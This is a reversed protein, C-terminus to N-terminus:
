TCISIIQKYAKRFAKKTFKHMAYNHSSEKQDVGPVSLVPVSINDHYIFGLGKTRVIDPYDGINPTIIVQLGAALYEAFKVPAAVKNTTSNERLLLGYDCISLTNFVEDVPLWAKQLRNPFMRYAKLEKLAIKSLFLVKINDQQQLLATLFDDILQFSQWGAASGSFVVIIDDSTYGFQKRYELLSAETPLHRQFNKNLTCPVVIHKNEEYGFESKWYAVLKESVAIRFDAQLVAAREAEWEKYIEQESLHYKKKFYERYEAAHAGRGDYVVRKISSVSLALRTAKVGRCIFKNSFFLSLLWLLPRYLQWRKSGFIMPLTFAASYYDKYRRRQKWYNALPIFIIPKLTVKFEKSLFSCTDLAQSAIVGSFGEGFILYNIL